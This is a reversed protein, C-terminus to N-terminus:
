GFLGCIIHSIHQNVQTKSTPTYNYRKELLEKMEEWLSHQNLVVWEGIKKDYIVNNVHIIGKEHCTIRMPGFHIAQEEFRNVFITGGQTIKGNSGQWFLPIM